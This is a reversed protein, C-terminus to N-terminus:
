DSRLLGTLLHMESPYYLVWGQFSTFVPRSTCPDVVRVIEGQRVTRRAYTVALEPVREVFIRRSCNALRCFFKRVRLHLRVKYTGWPLDAITRTYHSHIRTALRACLPCRASPSSMFMFMSIFRHEMKIQELKLGAIKPVLDTVLKRTSKNPPPSNSMSWRTGSKPM